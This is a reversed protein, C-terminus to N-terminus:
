EEYAIEAFVKYFEDLTMQFVGTTYPDQGPVGNLKPKDKSPRPNRGWPNRITLLTGDWGIVSYAHGKPLGYDNASMIAATVLRRKEKGSGRGFAADLKRVTTSKRTLILFDHDIKADTFAKLGTALQGGEGVEKQIDPEQVRSRAVAYAKEMVVLWLGDSGAYSYRAIEGDTPPSITVSGLKGPFNVTYSVVKGDQKNEKIMRVLATPDRSIFSGLAALFYCDGIPGQKLTALNPVGNPFLERKTGKIKADATSYFSEVAVQDGKGKEYAELDSLTLGDNEPGFEDNSLKQLSSVLKHLTAVAAADAGTFAPDSLAQNIEAKSLFGNGNKDIRHFNRRLTDSWTVPKEPEKAPPSSPRLIATQAEFGATARVQERIRKGATQSSRGKHSQTPKGERVQKTAEIDM